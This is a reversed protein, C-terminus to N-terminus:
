FSLGVNRRYDSLYDVHNIEAIYNVKDYKILQEGGVYLHLTVIEFVSESDTQEVHEFKGLTMKKPIGRFDIRVPESSIIKNAQDYNQQSGRLTLDHAKQGALMTLDSHITRWHLTIELSETHGLGALELEGLVGPGSITNTKFSFDPLDITVMGLFRNGDEYYAEYGTLMGRTIAFNSAGSGWASFNAM